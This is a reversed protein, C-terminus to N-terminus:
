GKTIVLSGVKFNLVVTNGSLLEQFLQHIIEKLCLVVLERDIECVNGISSYSIAQEQYATLSIDSSNKYLLKCKSLFSM